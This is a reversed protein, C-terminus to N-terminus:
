HGGHVPLGASATRRRFVAADVAVHGRLRGDVAQSMLDHQADRPKTYTTLIAAEGSMIASEGLCLIITDAGDCLAAAQAIGSEDDSAIAAGEAYAIEQGPLAARLGDLVSICDKPLGAAAWCGRMDAAADALPGIVALKGGLIPLAGADNKLMVVSRAGFNL